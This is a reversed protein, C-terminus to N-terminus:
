FMGEQMCAELERAELLQKYKEGGERLEEASMGKLENTIHQQANTRGDPNPNPNSPVLTLNQTHPNPKPSWRGGLNAGAADSKLREAYAAKQREMEKRALVPDEEIHLRYVRQESVEAVGGLTESVKRSILLGSFQGTYSADGDEDVSKLLTGGDPYISISVEETM